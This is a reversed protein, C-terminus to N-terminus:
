WIFRMSGFDPIPVPVPGRRPAPFYVLFAKGILLDRHVVGHTDDIEDVWPNHPGWLRGDLSMPSNDGCTFFQNPSLVATTAPSLTKGPQGERGSLSNYLAPQYYIDREIAVRYLTFPGGAFEFHAGAQKYNNPQMLYFPDGQVRKLDVGLSRQVREAPSWHYEAYAVRSDNVFLSMSQDVHWFDLNTVVGPTLPQDLKATALPQWPGDPNIGDAQRMQLTVDAGAVEARFEHGRANVVAAVRQGEKEPRIGLSLRIDSTPFVQFRGPSTENYAVFDTIQRGPHWTLSTPAQGTYEYDKRDALKWSNSQDRPAVWPAVYAAASIPTYESSFIPQWMARQAAEPKRAVRWKNGGWLREEPNVQEGPAVPQVFVDGDIMAVMENPLGILRKIYNIGPDTPNKFVVVDWRKPDYISYLYKMVFIRDGWLRPTNRAPLPQGTMPDNVNVGTQIPAPVTGTQDLYEKPGTTWEYGSYPSKYRMHAGLLTPAMSGTPIVFAEIVFGRFVFAMAFAIIISTITEKIQTPQQEPKADAM